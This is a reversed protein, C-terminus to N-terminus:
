LILDAHWLSTQGFSIPKAGDHMLIETAIQFLEYSYLQQVRLILFTIELNTKILYNSATTDILALNLSEKLNWM